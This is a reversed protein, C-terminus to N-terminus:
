RFQQNPASRPGANQVAQSRFFITQNKVCCVEVFGSRKNGLRRGPAWPDHAHPLVPRSDRILLCGSKVWAFYYWQRLGEPLSGRHRAGAIIGGLSGDGEARVPEIGLQPAQLPVVPVHLQSSM